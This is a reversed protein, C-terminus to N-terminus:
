VALGRTVWGRRERRLPFGSGQSHASATMAVFIRRTSPTMGGQAKGEACGENCVVLARSERQSSFSPTPSGSEWQPEFLPQCHFPGTRIPWPLRMKISKMRAGWGDDQAGWGEDQAQRLVTGGVMMRLGGVMMRLGRSKMRLGRSKMRLGKSRMRLGRSKMRLGKSRM